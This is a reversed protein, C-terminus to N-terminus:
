PDARGYGTEFGAEYRADMLEKYAENVARELRLYEQDGDEANVDIAKRAAEREEVLEDFRQKLNRIKDM